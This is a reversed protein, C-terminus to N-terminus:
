LHAEMPKEQLSLLEQLQASVIHMFYSLGMSSLEEMNKLLELFSGLSM